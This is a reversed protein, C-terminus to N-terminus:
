KNLKVLEKYIKSIFWKNSICKVVIEELRHSRKENEKGFYFNKTQIFGLVNEKISWIKPTKDLIDYGFTVDGLTERINNKLLKITKHKCTLRYDM